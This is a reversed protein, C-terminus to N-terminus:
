KKKQSNLKRLKICLLRPLIIQREHKWIYVGFNIFSAWCLFELNFHRENLCNILTDSEHRLLQRKTLEQEVFPTAEM